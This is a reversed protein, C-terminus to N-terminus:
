SKGATKKMSKRLIEEIKELPEGNRVVKGNVIIAPVDEISYYQKLIHLVGSENDDPLIFLWLKEGYERHLKNFLNKYPICSLCESPYIYIIYSKKDTSNRNHVILKQWLELNLYIWERSVRTFFDNIDDNNSLREIYVGTRFLRDALGDTLAEDTEAAGTKTNLVQRLSLILQGERLTNRLYTMEMDFRSIKKDYLIQSFFISFFMICFTVALGKYILNKKGADMM